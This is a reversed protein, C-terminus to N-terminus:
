LAGGIADLKQQLLQRGPGERGNQPVAYKALAEAYAQRAEDRKGQALLVDGRLEGYRSDFAEAHPSALQKLAEDYSQQDLLVAALRLRALDRLEADAHEVAWQLQVQATKADNAEFASNAALMSGLTAYTTGGFKETLEGAATRIRAADKESVAKQLVGYLMSAEAAQKDQYMGWGRWGVVSVALAVVVATILNGHQNWWARLSDIQEQEELDYVAM